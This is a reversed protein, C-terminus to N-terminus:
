NSKDHPMYGKITLGRFHDNIDPHKIPGLNNDPELNRQAVYTRSYSDDVLIHYWPDEKPPKSTAAANYWDESGEFNPDLDIVVGRYDFLKHHIIQGINFHAKTTSM